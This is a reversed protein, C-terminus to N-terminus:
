RTNSETKPSVSTAARVAGPGAGSHAAIPVWTAKRLTLRTTNSPTCRPAPQDALTAGVWAATSSSPYRAAVAITKTPALSTAGLIRARAGRDPCGDAAVVCLTPLQVPAPGSSTGAPRSRSGEPASHTHIDRTPRSRGDCPRPARTM